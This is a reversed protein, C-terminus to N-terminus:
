GNKVNGYESLVKMLPYQLNKVLPDQQRENVAQLLDVKTVFGEWYPYGDYEYIIYYRIHDDKLM